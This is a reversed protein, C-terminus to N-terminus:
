RWRRWRHWTVRQRCDGGERHVQSLQLEEADGGGPRQVDAGGAVAMAAAADFQVVRGGVEDGDQVKKVQVAEGPEGQDGTRRSSSLARTRGHRRPDRPQPTSTAACEESHRTTSSACRARTTRQPRYRPLKDRLRCGPQRVALIWVRYRGTDTPATAALDVEISDKM